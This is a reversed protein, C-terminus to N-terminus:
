DRDEIDWDACTNPYNVDKNQEANYTLTRIGMKWGKPFELNGYETVEDEVLTYIRVDYEPLHDKCFVLIEDRDTDYDGLHVPLRVDCHVCKLSCIDCM